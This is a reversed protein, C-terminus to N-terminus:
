KSAPATIMPLAMLKMEEDGIKKLGFLGGSSEATMKAIYRLSDYFDIAFNREIRPFITSLHSLEESIQLNRKGTEMLLGQLVIKLKDEFDETAIKYFEAVSPKAKGKKALEIASKFEKNDIESDAGAILICVLMPAKALLDFESASLGELEKLM